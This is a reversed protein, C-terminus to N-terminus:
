KKNFQLTEHCTEDEKGALMSGGCDKFIFYIAVAFSVMYFLAYGAGTGIIEVWENIDRVFSQESLIDATKTIVNWLAILLISPIM